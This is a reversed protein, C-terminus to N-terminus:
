HLLLQTGNPDQSNSESIGFDFLFVPSLSIQEQAQLSESIQGHKRTYVKAGSTLEFAFSNDGIAWIAHLELLPASPTSRHAMQKRIFARRFAFSRRFQLKQFESM